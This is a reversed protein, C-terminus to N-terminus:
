SSVKCATSKSTMGVISMAELLEAAVRNARLAERGESSSLIQVPVTWKALIRQVILHM